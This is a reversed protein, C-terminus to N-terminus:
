LEYKLKLKLKRFMIKSVKYGPQTRGDIRIKTTILVYM